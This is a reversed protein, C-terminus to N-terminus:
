PQANIEIYSRVEMVGEVGNKVIALVQNKAAESPVSGDLTVTGKYSDVDISLPGPPGDPAEIKAKIQDVIAQDDIAVQKKKGSSACGLLVFAMGIVLCTTFLRRIMKDEPTTGRLQVMIFGLAADRLNSKGLVLM